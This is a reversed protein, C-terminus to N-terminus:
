RMELGKLRSSSIAFDARLVANVIQDNPDKKSTEKDNTKGSRNGFDFNTENVIRAITKNSCQAITTSSTDLDAAEALLAEDFEDFEDDEDSLQTSALRPEFDEDLKARKDDNFEAETTNDNPGRKTGKHTSNFHRTMGGKNTNKFDCLHCSFRKTENGNTTEEAFSIEMNMM